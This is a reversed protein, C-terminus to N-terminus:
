YSMLLTVKEKDDTCDKAVIDFLNLWNDVDFKDDEGTFRKLKLKQKAAM